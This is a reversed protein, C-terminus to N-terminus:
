VCGGAGSGRRAHRLRARYRRPGAGDCHCFPRRRRRRHRASKGAAGQGRGHNSGHLRPAPQVVGRHRRPLRRASSPPPVLRARQPLPCLPARMADWMTMHLSVRSSTGAINAMSSLVDFQQARTIRPIQDMAVATVGREALAKVLAANIAPQLLSVLLGGPRLAAVEAVSPPRVKLVVDAGLATAADVIRAGASVFASDRFSADSGAGAEVAVGFGKNVLGAVSEPTQAVRREGPLVEKPVGVTLASLPKGFVTASQTAPATTTTSAARSAAPATAGVRRAASTLPRWMRGARHAAHFRRRTELLDRATRLGCGASTRTSVLTRKRPCALGRASLNEAM